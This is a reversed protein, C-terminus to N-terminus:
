IISSCTNYCHPQVSIFNYWIGLMLKRNNQLSITKMDQPNFYKVLLSILKKMDDSGLTSINKKLVVKKLVCICLVILSVM